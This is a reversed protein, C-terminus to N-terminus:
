KAPTWTNGDGSAAGLALPDAMDNDTPALAANWPPATVGDYQVGDMRTQVLEMRHNVFFARNGTSGPDVPWAYCGWFAECRDADVGAAPGGGAVEALGTNNVDPLYLLFYYGTKTARGQADIRRFTEGLLPSELPAAPGTGRVNLAVGGSLEGLSGYEGAGDQDVDVAAATQFQAQATAVSRLTGLASAENAALKSSLLNPIAASALIAIVAIVLMLEILTFGTNRTQQM